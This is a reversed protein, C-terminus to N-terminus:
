QVTITLTRDGYAGISDWARTVITHTGAALPLSASISTV